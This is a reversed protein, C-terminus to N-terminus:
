AWDESDSTESAGGDKGKVMGAGTFAEEGIFGDSSGTGSVETSFPLINVKLHFHMKEWISSDNQPIGKKWKYLIINFQQRWLSILTYLFKGYANMSDRSCLGIVFISM